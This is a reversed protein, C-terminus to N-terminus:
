GFSPITFLKQLFDSTLAPFDSVVKYKDKQTKVDEIPSRFLDM